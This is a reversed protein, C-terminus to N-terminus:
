RPSVEDDRRMPSMRGGCAFTRNLLRELNGGTIRNEDRPPLGLLRIKELEL